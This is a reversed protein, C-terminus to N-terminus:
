SVTFQKSNEREHAVWFRHISECWYLICDLLWATQRSVEDLDRSERLLQYNHAWSKFYKNKYVIKKHSLGVVRYNAAIFSM